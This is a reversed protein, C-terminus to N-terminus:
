IRRSYAKLGVGLLVLLMVGLLLEFRNDRLFQIVTLPMLRIADGDASKANVDRAVAEAQLKRRSNVASESPSTGDDLWDRKAQLLEGRQQSGTVETGLLPNQSLSPLQDRNGLQTQAPKKGPQTANAADAADARNYAPKNGQALERRQLELLLDLNRNGTSVGGQVAKDLVKGGTSVGVRATEANTPTDTQTETPASVPAAQALGLGCVLAAAALISGLRTQAAEARLPLPAPRCLSPPKM